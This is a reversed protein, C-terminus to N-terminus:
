RDGQAMGLSLISKFADEVRMHSERVESEPVILYYGGTPNPTTPVYVNLHHEPVIAGRAPGTVFGLTWVGKRPFELYVVRSFQQEGNASMTKLLQDLASYVSRIVPIHSILDAVYGLAKRGMYRKSFWGLMSIGLALLLAVMCTLIFNVFTSIVSSDLIADPLWQQPIFGHLSWVLALIRVIIWTVVCFPIVILVGALFNSKLLAIITLITKKM